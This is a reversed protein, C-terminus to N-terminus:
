NKTSLQENGGGKAERLPQLIKWRPKLGEMKLKQKKKFEEWWAAELVTM